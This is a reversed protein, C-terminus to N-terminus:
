SSEENKTEAKLFLLSVTENHADIDPVLFLGEAVGIRPGPADFPVVKAVPSGNRTLIIETEEGREISRVLSSLSAKQIDVTYM